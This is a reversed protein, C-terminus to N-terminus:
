FHIKVEWNDSYRLGNCSWSIPIFYNLWNHKDYTCNERAYFEMHYLSLLLGMGIALSMWMMCNGITKLDKRIAFFLLVGAGQFEIFLIPYCFRFTFGLIYEHFVASLLFVLFQCATRNKKFVYLYLDKYVYLYLWDHVIVNWTRYYVSFNTSNWWDRYFMRDSFRLFEAFANMWSHLVCYFGCLFCLLGPLMANFVSAILEKVGVEYFQSGFQNYVPYMIRESIFSMIFIISIVEIFCKVIFNWKIHKTRPYEDRYVLTPAFLFYTYQKFTTLIRKNNVKPSGSEPLKVDEKVETDDSNKDEEYDLDSEDSSKVKKRQYIVRPVNTRIFAYSKMMFRVLEMLVAVSSAQGLDFQIIIYTFGVVFMSQFGIVSLVGIFHWLNTMAGRKLFFKTTVYAWLRFAPYLSFITLQMLCWIFLSYHLGKFGSRIPRLGINIKGTDAFDSVFVNLLLLNFIVIFIHYITNIHKIEFLDTLMSNRPQYHKEPLKLPLKKSDVKKSKKRDDAKSKEAIRRRPKGDKEDEFLREVEFRNLSLKNVENLFDDFIKDLKEDIETVMQKHKNSINQKLVELEMDQISNTMSSTRRLVKGVKEPMICHKILFKEYKDLSNLPLVSISTYFNTLKINIHPSM